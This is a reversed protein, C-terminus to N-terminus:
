NGKSTLCTAATEYVFASFLYEHLVLYFGTPVRKRNNRKGATLHNHLSPGVLKKLESYPRIIRRGPYYRESTGPFVCWRPEKKVKRKDRLAPNNTYARLVFKDM